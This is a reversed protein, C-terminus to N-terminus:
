GYRQQSERMIMDAHAEHDSKLVFGGCEASHLVTRRALVYTNLM